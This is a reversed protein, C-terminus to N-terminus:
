EGDSKPESASETRVSMASFSAQLISATRLGDPLSFPVTDGNAGRRQQVCYNAVDDIVNLPFQDISDDSMVGDKDRTIELPCNKFDVVCYAFIAKHAFVDEMNALALLERSIPRVKFMTVRSGTTRVTGADDIDLSSLKRNVAYEQIATYKLSLIEPDALSVIWILDTTRKTIM